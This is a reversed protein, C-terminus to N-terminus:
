EKQMLKNCQGYSCLFFPSYETGLECVAFNLSLLIKSLNTPYTLVTISFLYHEKLEQNVTKEVLYKEEKRFKSPSLKKYLVRM